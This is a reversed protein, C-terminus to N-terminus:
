RIIKYIERWSVVRLNSGVPQELREITSDYEQIYIEKKSSSGGGAQLEGVTVARRAKSALQLSEISSGGASKLGSDGIVSGAATQVYRAYLRGTEALNLCPNVNEISGMRSSFYVIRDSIVPGSWI